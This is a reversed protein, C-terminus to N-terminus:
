MPQCDKSNVWQWKKYYHDYTLFEIIKRGHSWGGNEIKEEIKYVTIVEHEDFRNKYRVKFM